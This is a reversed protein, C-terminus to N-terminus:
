FENYKKASDKAKQVPYKENNRKIKEQIIEDMDAVESQIYTSINEMTELEANLKEELVKALVKAQETVQKEVHNQLLVQMKSQMLVGVLVLVIVFGILLSFIKARGKNFKGQYLNILTFFLINM